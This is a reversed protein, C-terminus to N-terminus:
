NKNLKAKANEIDSEIKNVRLGIKKMEKLLKMNYYLLGNSRFVSKSENRMNKFEYFTEVMSYYDLKAGLLNDPNKRSKHFMFTNEIFKIAVRSKIIKIFVLFQDNSLDLLGHLCVIILSSIFCGWLAQLFCTIKGLTTLPYYDGYGVTLMTIVTCWMPNIYTEFDILGKEVWFPREVIRLIFGFIIVSALFIWVVLKIHHIKLLCKLNFRINNKVKNEKCLRYAFNDSFISYNICARVLYLVRIMMSLYIFDSFLYEVPIIKSQTRDLDHLVIIFDLQPYPLILNVIIDLCLGLGLFSTKKDAILTDEEEFIAAELNATQYSETTKYDDDTMKINRWKNKMYHRKFVCFISLLSLFIMLLRIGSYEAVIKRPYSFNIEYDYYALLVIFLNTLTICNDYFRWLKQYYTLEDYKTPIGLWNFLKKTGMFPLTINGITKFITNDVEKPKKVKIVINKDPTYNEGFINIKSEGDKYNNVPKISDTNTLLKEYKDYKNM